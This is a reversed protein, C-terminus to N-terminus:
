RQAVRGKRLRKIKRRVISVWQKHLEQRVFKRQIAPDRPAKM